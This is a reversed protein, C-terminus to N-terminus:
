HTNLKERLKNLARGHLRTIWSTDYNLEKAIDEFKMNNLYRYQMIIREQYDQLSDIWFQVERRDADLLKTQVIITNELEQINEIVAETYDSCCGGHVERYQVTIRKRRSDLKEIEDCLADIQKLQATYIKLKEKVKKNQKQRETKPPNVQKAYDNIAKACRAATAKNKDSDDQLLKLQELTFIHYVKDSVQAKKVERAVGISKEYGPLLCISKSVSIQAFCTPFYAEYALGEPMHAPNIVPCGLGNLLEEAERFNDRYNEVGSIPGSVYCVGAKLATNLEEATTVIKLM